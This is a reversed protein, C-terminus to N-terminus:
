ANKLGRKYLHMEKKPTFNFAECLIERIVFSRSIGLEDAVSDIQEILPKYEENFGVGVIEM